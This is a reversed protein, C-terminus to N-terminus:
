EAPKSTRVSRGLIQFRKRGIRNLNLGVKFHTPGGKMEHLKGHVVESPLATQPQCKRSYSDLQRFSAGGDRLFNLFPAMESIKRQFYKATKEEGLIELMALVAAKRVDGSADSTALESVEDVTKWGDPGMQRLADCAANRVGEDAHSLAASLFPVAASRRNIGVEGAHSQPDPPRLM